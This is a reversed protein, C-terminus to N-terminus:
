RVRRHHGGHLFNMTQVVLLVLADQKFSEQDRDSRLGLEQCRGIMEVLVQDITYQYEGTWWAVRRRIEPRVKRLLSAATIGHTGNEPPPFLRRLDRDYFQPREVGYRQKKEKYLQELTVCLQSLPEVRERCKNIPRQCAVQRMLEDVCELKKLAPWGQYRKRWGSNPDLWVAFTEAFDEAPHSQAYWSDLHLVYRKSYPKPNYFQTYPLSFKGFCERWIKKHHLRYATDFAHAAEHRLLQMCWRATGGEVELIQNEELRMLRPHALYFPIAVGPVGDPSFWESSLWFHPKFRLGRAKLEGCLREIRAQLVTGRLGLKLDCLRVKMLEADPLRSWNPRRPRSKAPSERRAM